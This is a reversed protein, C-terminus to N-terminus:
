ISNARYFSPPQGYKKRFAKSFSSIDAFGTLLAIEGMSLAGNKMLERAKQLRSSIVYQYPAVKFLHKFARSFHFPSMMCSSALEEIDIHTCYTDDIIKKGLNLRSYLEKKTAFRSAPINNIQQQTLGQCILLKESIEYYLSSNSLQPQTDRLMTKGLEALLIGLGSQSAPYNSEFVDLPYKLHVIPDELLCDTRSSLTRYVDSIISLDLNICIGTVDTSSNVHASIQQGANVLLFEGGNVSHIKNNFYYQETGQLVYKIGIHAQDSKEQEFSKLRSYVLRNGDGFSSKEFLGHKM